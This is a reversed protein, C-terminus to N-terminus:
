KSGGDENGFLNEEFALGRIDKSYVGLDKLLNCLFSIQEPTMERVTSHPVCTSWYKADALARILNNVIITHGPNEM